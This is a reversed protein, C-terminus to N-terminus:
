PRRTSRGRSQRARQPGGVGRSRGSRDRGSAARGSAGGGSPGGGLDLSGPQTGTYRWMIDRWMSLRHWEPAEALRDPGTLFPNDFYISMLARGAGDKLEFGWSNPCGRPDLSRFLRAVGPMRKRGDPTDPVAGPGLCLHFHPGNFGITFYGANLEFRDPAAPCTWEYAIGDLIPGYTVRNWYREFLDTLFSQLYDTDTPLEWHHAVVRGLPDTVMHMPIVAAQQSMDSEM